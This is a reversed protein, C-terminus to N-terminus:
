GRDKCVHALRSWRDRRPHNQKDARFEAEAYAKTNLQGRAASDPSYANISLEMRLLRGYHLLIAAVRRQMPISSGYCFAHPELTAQSEICRRHKPENCDNQTEAQEKTEASGGIVISCRNHIRQSSALPLSVCFHQCCRRHEASSSGVTGNVNYFCRSSLFPPFISFSESSHVHTVSCTCLNHLPTM